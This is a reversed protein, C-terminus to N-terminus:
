DNVPQPDSSGPAVWDPAPGDGSAKLGQQVTEPAPADAFPEPTGDAVYASIIKDAETANPVKEGSIQSALAKRDAASMGQWDAPILVGEAKAASGVGAPMPLSPTKNAADADKDAKRAVDAWSPRREKDRWLEDPVEFVDGMERIVGGFYGKANAVVLTM